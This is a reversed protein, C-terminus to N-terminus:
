EINRRVVQDQQALQNHLSKLRVQNDQAPANRGALIVKYLLNESVEARFKVKLTDGDPRALWQHEASCPVFEEESKGSIRNRGEDGEVDESAGRQGHQFAGFELSRQKRLSPDA